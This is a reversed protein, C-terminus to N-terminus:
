CNCPKLAKCKGCYKGKKNGSGPRPGGLGLGKKGLVRLIAKQWNQDYHINQNEAVLRATLDKDFYLSKLLSKNKDIYAIAESYSLKKTLKM